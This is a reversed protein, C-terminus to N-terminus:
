QEDEIKEITIRIKDKVEFIIDDPYEKDELEKAQIIVEDKDLFTDVVKWKSRYESPKALFLTHKDTANVEKILVIKKTM